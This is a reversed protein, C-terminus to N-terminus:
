VKKKLQYRKEKRRKKKKGKKFNQETSTSLSHLFTNLFMFNTTGNMKWKKCKLVVQVANEEEWGFKEKIVIKM